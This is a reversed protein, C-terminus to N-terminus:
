ILYSVSLDMDIQIHSVIHPPVHALWSNNPASFSWRALLHAVKNGTRRGWCVSVNPLSSLLDGGNRAISGWYVRPYVKSRVVKVVISSDMEIVITKDAFRQISRLVAELGRAEAEMASRAKVICTAAQNQV